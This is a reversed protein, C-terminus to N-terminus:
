INQFTGMTHHRMEFTEFFLVFSTDSINKVIVTYLITGLFTNENYLFSFSCESWQNITVVYCKESCLACFDSCKESCLIKVLAALNSRFHKVTHTLRENLLKIMILSHFAILKFMEHLLLLDWQIDNTKLLLDILKHRKMQIAIIFINMQPNEMFKWFYTKAMMNSPHNRLMKLCMMQKTKKLGKFSTDCLPDRCELINLQGKFVCM